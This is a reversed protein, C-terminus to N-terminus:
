KIPLGDMHQAFLEDMQKRYEPSRKSLGKSILDNEIATLLQGQTKASSISASTMLPNPNNLDKKNPDVGGGTADKKALVSELRSKLLQDAKMNALNKDRIPIDGDYFTVTGDEMVKAGNVLNSIVGNIYSERVDEPM